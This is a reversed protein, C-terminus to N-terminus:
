EGATPLVEFVTWQDVEFRRKLRDATAPHSGNAALLHTMGEKRALAALKSVPQQRYMQESVSKLEFGTAPFDPTGMAALMRREWELAEDGKMPVAKWDVFVAREGLLRFDILSPPILFRAAKPTDNRVKEYIARRANSVHVERVRPGRMRAPGFRTGYQVQTLPERAVQLTWVVSLVCSFTVVVRPVRGSRTLAVASAGVLLSVPLAFAWPPLSWVGLEAVDDRAFTSLVGLTAAAWLIAPGKRSSVAWSMSGGVALTLLIALPISLRWLFLRIIPVYGAVGGALAVLHLGFLGGVIWSFAVTEPRRRTVVLHPLAAMLLVLPWWVDDPELLSVDYHHPARVFLITRIADPAGDSTVFSALMLYLSPAAVVAFAAGCALVPRLATRARWMLFPAVALPGIAGFSLHMLSSIGLYVGALIPRGAILHACALLFPALAMDAPILAGHNVTAGAIGAHRLWAISLVAAIAAVWGLEMSSALRRIAHALWALVGVHVALVAAPLRDEGFVAALARIVHAYGYHYHSTQWTLWDGAVFGDYIHRYPLLLYQRQNSIEFGYGFSFLLLLSAGALYLSYPLAALPSWGPRSPQRQTASAGEKGKRVV